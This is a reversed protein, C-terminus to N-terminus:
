EKGEKRRVVRDICGAYGAMDVINDATHKNVERSIKVGIMCLGVQEPSVECGLIAGWITASRQFDDLPHGYDANRDGYILREAKRLANVEVPEPEAARDKLGPYFELEAFADPVAALTLAQETLERRTKYSRVPAPLEEATVKLPQGYFDLEIGAANSCSYSAEVGDMKVGQYVVMEGVSKRIMPPTWRERQPADASRTDQLWHFAPVYNVIAGSQIEVIDIGLIQGIFVELNAGKSHQWGPLIVIADPRNKSSTLVRLDRRLYEEYSIPDEGDKPLRDPSAPNFVKYGRITLELECEAFAAKNYEPLGTMPGSLYVFPHSDANIPGTVGPIYEPRECDTPDYKPSYNPTM